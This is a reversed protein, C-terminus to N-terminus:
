DCQFFVAPRQLAPLKTRLAKAFQKTIHFDRFRPSRQIEAPASTNSLDKVRPVPWNESWAQTMCAILRRTDAVGLCSAWEEGELFGAGQWRYLPRCFEPLSVAEKLAQSEKRSLHFWPSADAVAHLKFLPWLMVRPIQARLYAEVAAALLVAFESRKFFGVCVAHEGFAPVYDILGAM